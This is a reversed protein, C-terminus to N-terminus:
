HGTVPVPMNYEYHAAKALLFQFFSSNMFM